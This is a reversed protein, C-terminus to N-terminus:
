QTDYFTLTAVVIVGSLPWLVANKTTVAAAAYLIAHDYGGSGPTYVTLM